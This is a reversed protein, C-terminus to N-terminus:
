QGARDWYWVETNWITKVVSESKM